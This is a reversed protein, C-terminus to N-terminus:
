IERTEKGRAQPEQVIDPVYYVEYLNQTQHWTENM